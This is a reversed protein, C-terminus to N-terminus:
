RGSTVSGVEIEGTVSHDLIGRGVVEYQVTTFTSAMEEFLDPELHKKLLATAEEWPTEAGAETLGFLHLMARELMNSAYKLQPWENESLSGPIVTTTDDMAPSGFGIVLVSPQRVRLRRRVRINFREGPRWRFAFPSNPDTDSHYAGSVPTLLRYRSYIKEPQLGVDVIGEWIHEGPEFFPTTDLAGTDLDMTETDTDKPVLADWLADYTLADDPDFVPLIWAECAYMCSQSQTMVGAKWCHVEAKVDHIVTDSPLSWGLLVQDSIASNQIHSMRRAFMRLM